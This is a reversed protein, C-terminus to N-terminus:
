AQRCTLLWGMVGLFCKDPWEGPFLYCVAANDGTRCQDVWADELPNRHCVSSSWRWEPPVTRDQAYKGDRDRRAHGKGAPEAYGYELDMHVSRNGFALLYIERRLEFPLRQFFAGNAPGHHLNLNESSPTPTLIHRRKAPLVPLGRPILPTDSSKPHDDNDRFSRMKKRIWTSLKPM